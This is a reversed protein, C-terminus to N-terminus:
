GHPPTLRSGGMRTRTVTVRVDDFELEIPADPKSVTVRVNRLPHAELLADAIVAALREILEFRQTSAIQAALQALDAYSVADELRDSDAAQESLPTAAIDLVFRQGNRKEDEFVGHHGHVTLGRVEILLEDTVSSHRSLQSRTQPRACTM